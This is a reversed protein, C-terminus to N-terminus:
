LNSKTHAIKLDNKYLIYIMGVVVNNPFSRHLKMCCGYSKTLRVNCFVKTHMRERDEEEKERVMKKMYIM